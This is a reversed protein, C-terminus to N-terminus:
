INLLCLLKATPQLLLTLSLLLNHNIILLILVVFACFQQGVEKQADCMVAM